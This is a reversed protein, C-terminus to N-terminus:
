RNKQIAKKRKLMRQQNIKTVKEKLLNKLEEWTIRGASKGIERAAEHYGYRELLDKLLLEESIKEKLFIKATARKAATKVGTWIVKGGIKLLKGAAIFGFVIDVANEMWVSKGSWAEEVGPPFASWYVLFEPDGLGKILKQANTLDQYLRFNEVTCTVFPHLKAKDFSEISGIYTPEVFLENIGSTDVYMYISSPSGRSIQGVRWVLRDSLDEFEDASLM